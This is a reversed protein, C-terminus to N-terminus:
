VSRSPLPIAERQRTSLVQDFLAMVGDAMIRPSFKQEVRCRGAAGLRRALASDRLLRLLASCYSDLDGEPCLYGSEGDAVAESIGGVNFAVVPLSHAMAELVTKPLGESRSTHTYVDMQRYWPDMDRQQGPLQLFGSVGLTAAQTRLKELDAPETDGIMLCRASPLQQHVRSFIELLIEPRKVSRLGVMGLTPHHERLASPLAVLPSAPSNEGAPLEIGTPIVKMTNTALGKAALYAGYGRLAAASVAAVANSRAVRYKEYYRESRDAQRLFCIWPIRDLRAAADTFPGLEAHNSVLLRARMRSALRAIRLVVAPLRWLADHRRYTRLGPIREVRIGEKQLAESLLGPRPVAVTMTFRTRDINRALTLLANRPSFVNPRPLTQLVLIPVM